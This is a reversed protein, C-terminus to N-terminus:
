KELEIEHNEQFLKRCDHLRKRVWAAEVDEPLRDKRMPKAPIGSSAFLLPVGGRNSRSGEIKMRGNPGVSEELYCKKM